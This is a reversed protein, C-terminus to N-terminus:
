MDKRIMNLAEELNMRKTDILGVYVGTMLHDVQQNHLQQKLCDYFFYINLDMVTERSYKFGPLNIMMSILPIIIPKADEHHRKRKARKREYDMHMKRSAEDGWRTKNEKLNHMDRVIQMIYRYLIEDIRVGDGNVFVPKQTKEDVYRDFGTLDLDGFVCQTINPTFEYTKVLDFFFDLQNVDEYRVGADELQVDYDAPTSTLVSIMKFYGREGTDFEPVIPNKAEDLNYYLVDRLTPQKITIFDNVPIDIGLFLNEKYNKVM